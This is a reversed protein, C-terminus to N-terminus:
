RKKSGFILDADPAGKPHQYRVRRERNANVTPLQRNMSAIMEQYDEEEQREHIGLVVQKMKEKEAKEAQTREKFKTAFEASIPVNINTFQQKNGRRTMLMFEISAKEEKPEDYNYKNKNKAQTPVAIDMQPVKLSEQSRAQINDAMMKDFASLFDDDEQCKINKSAGTIVNVEPEFDEGASESMYDENSEDAYQAEIDQSYQRLGGDEQSTGSDDMELQSLSQSLEDNEESEQITCLGDDPESNNGEDTMDTDMLTLVSALKPKVEKELDEIAKLAEEHDKILKTKPRITEMTDQFLNKVDIPFPRDDNYIPNMKKYLYYKQFYLLFCDLKKKSSGKDFYQGCTELIVCTLRVRFLHEPPDLPSPTNEDYSVGFTIFSYLTKFIVSSEVLRYNYLEGLYKACSVRRQNFKPHNVEMGLRIDELVGDVVQIAVHEYYPALGALLNSSCHISNYRLNWVAILCKTAYFAIEPDDWKLKRLQRLVKETTTKSLDKYLLKRIYEHMPPRVKRAMQQVEPPNSYYFANEIMTTYRNELHLASKKRMMVDLYIKTRHHSDQSRYLFRGCNDLLACAMEINHHFFDFMLMKICHLAESKPFLNFKVLEGIFRVTKLKSEINIQDKKRVHWRFDGKLLQVLDNAVDPMCPFLTAVMRAYFSLLDYRTRHVTFLAKVLKKRNMKTNFNMCFEIAAKDILERNVCNPLSQVYADFQMKMLSGTDTDEEEGEQLLLDVDTSEEEKGEQEEKSEVEAIQQETEMEREVDEIKLDFEDINEEEGPEKTTGQESDKFCIGPIFAKLDPLNEYFVRSDEDEFLTTDGVYQFEADKEPHFIDFGSEDDRKMDEEPLDPLDEDLLDAFVSTNTFLKQYGTLLADYHEKRDQSIEGKTHLIKRNQREVSKLEKHDKILHKCLSQYYDGFLNRCAKQREPTLMSRKPINGGYKESLLRFKRPILGAYDEGCHKCFSTVISLNNHGEKDNNMLLGLQNALLGLGERHKIVGVSVLEAFFRLDVRYKSPNSIKEDKKHLLYKQWNEMLAIPFDTYRQYMLSCILVACPIDSMKLKAETIAAAVEGVYKSLNLAEFDKVLSDKQGETLNRLKKVFATNKKLNSDLKRFFAEDPRNEGISANKERLKDKVDQKEKNEKIFDSLSKKEDELLKRADEEEKRKKEEEKQKLEEEEKRKEEEKKKEEEEKQRKQDEEKQWQAELDSASKVHKSKLDPLTASKKGSDNDKLPKTNSEKTSKGDSSKTKSDGSGRKGNRDDKRREDEFRKAKDDRNNRERERRDSYRKSDKEESRKGRDDSIKKRQDYKEEEKKYGRGDGRGGTSSRSDTKSRLSDKSSQSRSPSDRAYSYEDPKKSVSKNEKKEVKKSLSDDSSSKKSSENKKAAKDDIGKEKLIEKKEDTETTNPTVDQSAKTSSTIIPVQESQNTNSTDSTVEANQNTNSTDSTVEANQNTNSTESPVEESQKTSRTESPVEESQKTSSTESPVEESQKTSSTESPVEESQKTNSTESPVEESQKTNSTESPVEKEVKGEAEISDDCTNSTIEVSVASDVLSMKETEESLSETDCLNQDVTTGTSTEPEDKEIKKEVNEREADDTLDKPLIKTSEINVDDSKDGRTLVDDSKDGKTLVDVSIGDGEEDNDSVQSTDTKDYIGESLEDNKVCVAEAESINLNVLIEDLKEPLNTSHATEESHDGRANNTQDELVGDVSSGINENDSM